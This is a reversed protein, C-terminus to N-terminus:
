GVERLYSLALPRLREREKPSLESWSRILKRCDTSGCLCDLTWGVEAISTSYDWYIQEGVGIDRLAFLVPEGTLFGANPACSHNICDDLNDGMSCLWLDPGVQMAQWNDKLADSLALWGQCAILLTGRAIPQSAFVGRGMNPTQRVELM